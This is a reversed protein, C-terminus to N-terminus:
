ILDAGRAVLLLGIVFQLPWSLQPKGRSNFFAVLMLLFGTVLFLKLGLM